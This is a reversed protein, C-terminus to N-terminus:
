SRLMLAIAVAFIICGFYFLGELREQRTRREYEQNDGSKVAM